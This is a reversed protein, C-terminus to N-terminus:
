NEPNQKAYRFTERVLSQLTKMRRQYNETPNNRVFQNQFNTFLDDAIPVEITRGEFTFKYKKTNRLSM